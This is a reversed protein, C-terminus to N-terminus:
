AQRGGSVAFAVPIGLHLPEFAAISCPYAEHLTVFARGVLMIWPRGLPTM